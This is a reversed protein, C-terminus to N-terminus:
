NEQASSIGFMFLIFSVLFILPSHIRKIRRILLNIAQYIRIKEPVISAVFFGSLILFLDVGLYGVPFM